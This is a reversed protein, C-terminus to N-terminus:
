KFFSEAGQPNRQYTSQKSGKNNNKESSAERRARRQELERQSYDTNTDTYSADNTSAGIDKGALTNGVDGLFNSFSGLAGGFKSQKRLEGGERRVKVYNPKLYEGQGKRPNKVYLQVNPDGLQDESAPAYRGGGMDVFVSQESGGFKIKPAEAAKHFTAQQIPLKTEGRKLANLMLLNQSATGEYDEPKSVVGMDVALKRRSEFDSPKGSQDLFDVISLGTYGKAYTDEPKKESTGTAASEPKQEGSAATSPATQQETPKTSIPESAIPDLIEKFNANYIEPYDKVIQKIDSMAKAIDDGQEQLYKSSEPSYADANEIDKLIKEVSNWFQLGDESNPNSGLADKEEESSSNYVSILKKLKNVTNELDSSTQELIYKLTNYKMM